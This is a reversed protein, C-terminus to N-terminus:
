SRRVIEHCLPCMLSKPFRPLVEDRLKKVRRNRWLGRAGKGIEMLLGITFVYAFSYLLFDRFGGSSGSGFSDADASSTGDFGDLKVM